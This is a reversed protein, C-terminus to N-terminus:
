DSRLADIPNLRSAKSAPLYGFAVGIGVSVGFSLLIAGLSPVAEIGIISGAVLSIVIGLVIGMVGGLSSTTGAEIVFQRMIDRRKAGLSKRIGIERTRETVSVLMINMIGIGGVLLSIGAIGVLVMTMTGTLENVNDVMEAMSTVNYLDEDEYTSYLFGELTAKAEDVHEADIACVKYSNITGMWSLKSAMTYPLYICDDASGEESDEQEALVGVVTYVNGNIKLTQGAAQTTGFLQAAVYTGIVCVKKRQSIDLYQIFRGDMVELTNLKDYDEGVGTITVTEAETTGNKVTAGMVTVTPSVGQYLGPQGDIFEYMDDVSVSASDRRGMLTVTMSNTGMSTFMDTMSTTMGQMLSVLVIVSAVGIIIGLMTLLSRMKSSMISNWALKFAQKFGM